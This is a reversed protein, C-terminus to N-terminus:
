FNEELIELEMASLEYATREETGEPLVKVYGRSQLRGALAIQAGGGIGGCILTDVGHRRLFGALAEHGDGGTGM